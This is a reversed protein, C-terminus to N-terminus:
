QESHKQVAYNTIHRLPDSLAAADTSYRLVM